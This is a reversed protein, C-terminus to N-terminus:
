PLSALDQEFQKTHALSEEAGKRDGVSELAQALAAALLKGLELKERADAVTEGAYGQAMGAQAASLVNPLTRAAYDKLLQIAPRLLEVRKQPEQTRSALYKRAFTTEAPVLEPLARIQFYPKSEVAMMRMAIAEADADSEQALHLDLLAKLTYLNNPDRELALRFTEAAEDPKGAAEQARALARLNRTSPSRKAAQELNAMAEAPSASVMAALYWADGDNSAMSSLTKAGESAAEIESKSVHYRFHAKTAEIAGFYLLGIPALAAIALSAWRPAPQVSEPTVGDANLQMGIGLLLFFAFGTGFYYLDSDVMSHAAAGAAAAFVGVKLPLTEGSQRAAGKFMYFTWFGGLALLCGLGLFGTEAGLQLFSNHALQTQTTLGSRGSEHRYAGIGWGQPHEKMLDLAGKWLLMRFGSSQEQTTAAETVRGLPAPSAESESGRMRLAGLLGILAILCLAVRGLKILAGNPKRLWLIGVVLMAFLGVGAALFAGKSQTLALAFAMLVTATGALWAGAKELSMTLGGGVLFGILLMGALANPNQWTAFIRWTPDNTQFFYELVGLGALVACGAVLSSLVAMPGNRRGLGGIAVLMTVGYVVWELAAPISIAAFASLLSSAAVVGFFAVAAYGLRPMPVQIVRRTILIHLAAACVLLSLVFHSLIPVDAGGFIARMLPSYGPELLMADTSVTGGILPALFAAACVLWLPARSWDLASTRSGLALSVGTEEAGAM